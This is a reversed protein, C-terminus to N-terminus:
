AIWIVRQAIRGPPDFVRAHGKPLDGDELAFAFRVPHEPVTLGIQTPVDHRIFINLLRSPGALLKAVIAADGSVQCSDALGSMHRTRDGVVLDIPAGLLFSMRAYGPFTSFPGDRDVGAVSIRVDFDDVDPWRVIEYTTGGGNKWAQARWSAPPLDRTV